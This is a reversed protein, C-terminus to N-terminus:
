SVISQAVQFKMDLLSRDQFTQILREGRDFGNGPLASQLKCKKAAGIMGACRRHMKSAIGNSPRRLPDGSDFAIARFNGPKTAVTPFISALGPAAFTIAASARNVRSTRWLESSM